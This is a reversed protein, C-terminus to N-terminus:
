RGVLYKERRLQRPGFGREKLEAVSEDIMNPNGCLFVMDREPDPDLDGFAQQVYGARDGGRLRQHRVRSYCPRFTFGPHAREFAEFEEGYILEEPTRVGFLMEFRTGNDRMRRAIEPLMSRYPTVGTGTAVLLYREPKEDQLTFRGVPGSARIEEGERLASLLETAAGGEVYSVAMEIRSFDEQQDPHMPDAPVTAISYSRRLTEGGREFHIQIFQGPIFPLAEGDSRVFALHRCTPHLMRASNLRIDFQNIVRQGTEQGASAQRPEHTISGRQAGACGTGPPLEPGQATFVHPPAGTATMRRRGAARDVIAVM